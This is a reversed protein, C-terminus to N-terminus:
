KTIIIKTITFIVRIFTNVVGYLSYYLITDTFNHLIIIHFKNDLAM